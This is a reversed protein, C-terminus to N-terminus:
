PVGYASEVRRKLVCPRVCVKPGAGVRPLLGFTPTMNFGRNVCIYICLSFSLSLSLSLSLPAASHGVLKDCLGKFSFGQGLKARHCFMPIM